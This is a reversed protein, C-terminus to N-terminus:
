AMSAEVVRGFYDALDQDYGYKQSSFQWGRSTFNLQGVHYNDNTMLHWMQGGAGSVKSLYGERTENNLTYTVPLKM